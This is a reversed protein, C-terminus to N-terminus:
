LDEFVMDITLSLITAPLPQDSEIQVIAQPSFDAPMKVERVGTFPQVPQSMPDSSSRFPLRDLEKRGYLLGVTEFFQIEIESIRKVKGKSTSGRQGQDYPFTEIRATYPLGVHITTALRSENNTELTVRGNEVTKRDAVAGDALIAVEEGELHDLGERVANDPFPNVVTAGADVFFAEEVPDRDGFWPGEMFEVHRQTTGNITREVVMWLRDNASAPDTIVTISVIKGSVNHKTWGFVQQDSEITFGVLNGDNTLLWLISEPSQQYAMRSVGSRLLHESFVSMDRAVLGNTDFDFAAERLTQQDRQVFFISHGVNAEPVFPASGRRTQKQVQINEPGLPEATGSKRILFESGSTGVALGNSFSSIWRIFNVQSTALEVDLANDPNVTGDSETPQHSDFAATRSMWLNQPNRFSSGFTLRQDHFTVVHPFGSGSGTWSGLRWTPAPGLGALGGDNRVVVTLSTNSEVSIIEAWGWFSNDRTINVEIESAPPKSVGFDVTGGRGDDNLTLKYDVEPIAEITAGEGINQIAESGGINTLTVRVDDESAVPFDFTFEATTGDTAPTVSAPDEPRFRILRGVDSAKFGDGGNIGDTSSATVTVTGTAASFELETDTQNPDDFPGDKFDYFVLSFENESLRRLERPFYNPHTLFLIDASQAWSLQNVEDASYPTPLFVDENAFGVVNDVFVTIDSDPEVVNFSLFVTDNEGPNFKVLHTGPQLRHFQVDQAGSVTGVRFEVEQGKQALVTGIEFRVFHDKETGILAVDLEQEIGASEGAAVQIEARGNNQTVSSSSGSSTTWNSLDSDFTGNTIAFQGIERASLVTNNLRLRRNESVPNETYIKVAQDEFAFVYTQEVNFEFPVLRAAGDQRNVHRTGPRKVAAGQVVPFFNRMEAVGNFFGEFDLRSRLRPSLEGRTFNTQVVDLSPM